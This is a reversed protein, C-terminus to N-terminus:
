FCSNKNTKIISKAVCGEIKLKKLNDLSWKGRGLLPPRRPPSVALNPPPLGGLYPRGLPFSPPRGFRRGGRRVPRLVPRLVLRLVPRLVPRRLCRGFDWVVLRGGRRVGASCWASRLGGLPQLSTASPRFRQRNNIFHQYITRLYNLPPPIKYPNIQKIQM